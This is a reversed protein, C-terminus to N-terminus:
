NYYYNKCNNSEFFTNIFKFFFVCISILFSIFFYNSYNNSSFNEFINYDSNIIDIYFSYGIISIISNFYSEFILKKITIECKSKLKIISEIFLQYIFIGGFLILKNILINNNNNDIGPIGIIFSIFIFFFQLIVNILLKM